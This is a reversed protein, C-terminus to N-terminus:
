RADLESCRAIGVMIVRSRLADVESAGARLCSAFRENATALHLLITTTVPAPMEHEHPM